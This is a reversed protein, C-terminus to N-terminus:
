ALTLTVSGVAFSLKEGEAITRPTSLPGHWLMNGGTSATHIAVHSITGFSGGSATFEIANSNSTTGTPSTAAPFTISQRAYGAGSVETGGGADNPAATYLALFWATPRTATGTTMMWDLLLKEAFDSLQAM